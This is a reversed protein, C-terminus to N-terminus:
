VNKKLAKIKLENNSQVILFKQEEIKIIFLSIKHSITQTAIVKIYNNDYNNNKKLKLFIFALCITSAIILFIKIYDTILINTM